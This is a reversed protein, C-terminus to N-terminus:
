HVLIVKFVARQKATTVHLYYIGDSLQELNAHTMNHGVTFVLPIMREDASFLKLDVISSNSNNEVIIKGSTPIPYCVLLNESNAEGVGLDNIVISNASYTCGISDEVVIYYTGNQSLTLTALNAGPIPLGNFYWQYTTFSPNCYLTSDNRNIQPNGTAVQVFVSDTHGIGCANIIRCHYIGQNSSSASTITYSPNTAGAIAVGNKYWQFTNFTSDAYQILQYNSGSCIVTDVINASPPELTAIYLFATDTSASGCANTATMFYNGTEFTDLNNLNLYPMIQGLMLYQDKHWAFQVGSGSISVSWNLNQGNCIATDSLNSYTIQAPSTLTQLHIPSSSIQDFPGTLQCTYNGTDALSASPIILPNTTAGPLPQNNIFWQYSVGNTYGPVINILVSDGQCVFISTPQATISISEYLSIYVANSFSSSLNRVPTCSNPAIAEVVYVYNGPQSISDIYHNTFPNLQAIPTLNNVSTGRLINYGLPIFGEYFNWRLSVHVTDACQNADLHISSHPDSLIGYNGCTDKALVKYRYAFYQTQATFDTDTSLSDYPLEHLFDYFHTVPNERLLAFSKIYNVHPKDFILINSGNSPDTSVICIPYYARPIFGAAYGGLYNYCGNADQVRLDYLDPFNANITPSVSNDSWLYANYSQVTGLVISGSDCFQYSIPQMVPVAPPALGILAVPASIVSCGNVTIIVTYDGATTCLISSCNEGPIPIGNRCWQYSFNSAMNCHLITSGNNCFNIPSTELIYASHSCSTGGSCTIPSSLTSTDACGTLTDIVILAVQYNGNQYYQHNLTASSNIESTGDGWSWTYEFNGASTTNTFNTIFPPSTFSSPTASFQPNINASSVLIALTDSDFCKPGNGAYVIIAMDHNPTLQASSGNNQIYGSPQYQYNINTSNGTCNITLPTGCTTSIDNGLNVSLPQYTIHMSDTLVVQNLVTATVTYTISSSVHVLPSSSNPNSLGAAPSWQFSVGSPINVSSHLSITDGCAITTDNSVTLLLSSPAIVLINITDLYNCSNSDSVSFYYSQNSTPYVIPNLLTTDNIFVSPTWAYRPQKNNNYRILSSVCSIFAHHADPYSPIGTIYSTVNAAPILKEHWTLGMDSSHYIHHGSGYAIANNSDAIDFVAADYASTVINGSLDYSVVPSWTNGYDSSRYLESSTCVLGYNQIFKIKKYNGVPLPMDSWTAGGDTTKKAFGNGLIYGLNTTSFFINNISGSSGTSLGTWTIGADTTKYVIGTAGVYGVSYSPFHISYLTTLSGTNIFDWIVGGGDRTRHIIGFSGAFYGTDKNMFYMDNFITSPNFENVWTLGANTTKNVMSSGASTVIQYGILSDSFQMHTTNSSYPHIYDFKSNYVGQGNLQISDGALMITDNGAFVSLPTFVTVTDSAHCIGNNLNASLIYRTTQNPQFTTSASNPNAVGYTPTWNYIWSPSNVTSPNISVSPGNCQILQDPGADLSYPLMVAMFSDNGSCGFSNSASVSIYTTDSTTTQIIPGTSNSIWNNSAWNFTYGLEDTRYFNFQQGGAFVRGNAYDLVLMDTATNTQFAWHYGGDVTKYIKSNGSLLYGVSDNVFLIDRSGINTCCIYWNAGADTTRYVESGGVAWGNTANIFSMKRFPSTTSPGNVVNVMNWSAGGNTTRYTTGVHQFIFGLNPTVYKVERPFIPVNVSTWTQGANTTKYYVSNDSIGIYGTTSNIISISTKSPVLTTMVWTNGGDTTRYLESGVGLAIGIQPTFFDVDTAGSLSSLSGTWTVGGNTTKTVAGGSLNSAAFGVNKNFFRLAVIPGTGGPTNAQYWGSGAVLISDGCIISTATSPLFVPLPNVTVTTTTSTSCGGPHSYTCTYTTTNLPFASTFNSNPTGVSGSPVWNYTYGPINTFNAMVSISITDGCNQYYPTTTLSPQNVTVTTTASQICGTNSQATVTYTTTTVPFALTSSNNPSTLNAIPSWQYTFPQHKIFKHDLGAGYICTPSIKKFKQIYIPNSLGSVTTWTAGGDTSKRLSTSGSVFIEQSNKFVIDRSGSGGTNFNQWSVGGNTTKVVDGTARTLYYEQAGTYYLQFRDNSTPDTFYNWSIGGDSTRYIRNNTGAAIGNLPDAFAITIFNVPVGTLVQNWTNGGDATKYINGGLDCLYGITSNCFVIDSVDYTQPLAISDFSAGGDTSKLIIGNVAGIFVNLPDRYVVCKCSLGNSEPVSIWSQGADTTRLAKDVGAYSVVIGNLSDAFDMGVFDGISMPVTFFDNVTTSLTVSGGCNVTQNGSISTICNTQSVVSIHSLIVAVLPIIYRVFKSNEVTLNVQKLNCRTSTSAHSLSYERM